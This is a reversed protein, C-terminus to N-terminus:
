NPDVTLVPTDKKSRHTYKIQSFLLQLLRRKAEGDLNEYAKIMDFTNNALKSEQEIDISPLSKLETILDAKKEKVAEIKKNYDDKTFNIDEDLYLDLLSEEKNELKVIAAELEKVKDSYGKQMEDRNTNKLTEIKEELQDSYGILIDSLVDEVEAVNCGINNCDNNRCKRIYYRYEGYLRIGEKYKSEKNAQVVMVLGCDSCRLLGQLFHKPAVAKHTYQESRRNLIKKIMSYEGDTIVADHNNEALTHEGDGWKIEVHGRIIPSHLISKINHVEFNNGKRTRYGLRNLEKCISGYTHGELTMDCIKRVVPLENKVQVIKRIDKDFEYGYVMKGSWIGETASARRGDKLRAVIFSYEAQSLTAQINLMVITNPNLLNHPTDKVYLTTMGKEVFYDEIIELFHRQKRSLRDVAHVMVADIKGLAIDERLRQLESRNIDQSSDIEEYLEYLWNNRECIHILYDKHKQLDQIGDEARSKRLYIAVKAIVKGQMTVNTIMKIGGKLNSYYILNSLDFVM